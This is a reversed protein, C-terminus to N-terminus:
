GQEEIAMHFFLQRAYAAAVAAAWGQWIDNKHSDCYDSIGRIVLCPFDTLVGTAEMEFCLVRHEKALEDRKKADKIVLEGSAITGRHVVVFSDIQLRPETRYKPDCGGKECSVGETKHEYYPVYQYDNEAGPYKFRRLPPRDSRIRKTNEWVPDYDMRNRRVSLERVANLLATPPPALCGKREFHGNKAKGHDYQIAGSHTGSPESVVVDGLGILGAETVTPVGGGIGVLLCYKLNPFTMRMQTAVTAARCNGATPLGAIVINHGNISGLNYINTDGKPQPLPNHEEDLMEMAATQEVELPCIWGVRYSDRSLTKKSM